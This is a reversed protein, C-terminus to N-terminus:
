EDNAGIHVDESRENFDELFSVDESVRISVKIRTWNSQCGHQSLQTREDEGKERM